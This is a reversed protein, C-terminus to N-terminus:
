SISFCPSYGELYCLVTDIDDEFKWTNQEKWTEDSCESAAEDLKEAVDSIEYKKKFVDYAYIWYLASVNFNHPGLWDVIKSLFAVEVKETMEVGKDLMKLLLSSAPTVYTGSIDDKSSHKVFLDVFSNQAYQGHRYSEINEAHDVLLSAFDYQHEKIALVILEKKSMNALYAIEEATLAVNFLKVVNDGELNKMNNSLYTFLSNLDNSKFELGDIEFIRVSNASDLKIKKNNDFQGLDKPLIKSSGFCPGLPRQGVIIGGAETM